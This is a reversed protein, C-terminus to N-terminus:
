RTTKLLTLIKKIRVDVGWFEHFYRCVINYCSLLTSKGVEPLRELAVKIEVAM